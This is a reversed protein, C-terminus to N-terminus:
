KKWVKYNRYRVSIKDLIREDTMSNMRELEKSDIFYEPHRVVFVLEECSHREKKDAKKRIEEIILRDEENEPEKITM